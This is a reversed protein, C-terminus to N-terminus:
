KLPGNPDLLWILCENQWAEWAPGKGCGLGHAGEPLEVLKVPRNHNEMAKAFLRSNDVPVANDKVSHVLFAQPTDNTVQLESSVSDALEQSPNEGLLNTKSGMHTKSGMTIVPYVLIMYDPRSSQKEIPDQHKVDGADYHTGLTSALHGGASFGMVGIKNPDVNWKKANHRITRMARKADDLPIPHKYTRLRYKLVIGAVNVMDLWAAIDHGEYSSCLGGYGGGPCILIAATPKTANKPIYVTIDPKDPPQDGMAGPATGQWLPFTGLCDATAVLSALLALLSFTKVKMAKEM